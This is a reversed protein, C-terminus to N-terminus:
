KVYFMKLFAFHLHTLLKGGSPPPPPLDCTGTTQNFIYGQNAECSFDTLEANVVCKCNNGCPNKLICKACDARTDKWFHSVWGQQDGCMLNESFM